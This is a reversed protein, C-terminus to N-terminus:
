HIANFVEINSYALVEEGESIIFMATRDECYQALIELNEPNTVESDSLSSELAQHMNTEGAIKYSIKIRLSGPEVHPPICIKFESEENYHYLASYTKEPEELSTENGELLVYIDSVEASNLGYTFVKIVKCEAEKVSYIQTQTEPFPNPSQPAEAAFGKANVPIIAVQPILVTATLISNAHRTHSSSQKRETNM